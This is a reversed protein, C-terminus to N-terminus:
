RKRRRWEWPPVAKKDLWLGVEDNKAARHAASYLAARANPLEALYRKFAWANGSRVLHLNIEIENYFLIALMRGYYDDGLDIFEVRKRSLFKELYTKSFNGYVQDLEPADIGALRVKVLKKNSLKLRITDGDVIEVVEAIPYDIDAAYVFSSSFLAVIFFFKKFIKIAFKVFLQMDGIPAKFFKDVDM